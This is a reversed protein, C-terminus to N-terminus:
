WRFAGGGRLMKMAMSTGSRPLGSVVIIPDGFRTRRYFRKLYSM